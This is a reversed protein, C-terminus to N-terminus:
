RMNLFKFKLKPENSVKSFFLGCRKKLTMNIERCERPLLTFYADDCLIAYGLNEEIPHVFYAPSSGSNKIIASTRIIGDREETKEVNFSIETKVYNRAPSYPIESCRSFFYDKDIGRHTLRVFIMAMDDDPTYCLKKPLASLKIEEASLRNGNSDFLEVKCLEETAKADGNLCVTAEIKKDFTIGDYKLSIESKSFAKKIWYYAMKPNGFYDMLNTCDCNPWPENIQWVMSGSAYPAMRRETEIVYRLGEAQTWQSYPVYDAVNEFEGYIKKDRRYSHWWYEGHHCNINWTASDPSNEKMFLPISEPMASIGFESHLLLKLRNYNSYHTTPYYEWPSHVDHNDERTFVTTYVPGSPTTPLFLHEADEKEVIRKLMAINEDAYTSPICNKDTLENGGTWIALSTHNRKVKLACVAADALKDLFDVHKSPVHDIGSSSQIFDQWVLIGYRDCLDYFIETEIIGGGWVRVLNVNENALARVCWEYDEYSVNGYLHDLPVKNNGKIYVPKGNIEITYPLADEPSGPNQVYRLSRIGVKYEYLQSGYTVSLTYLPQSGMGNPYWISPTDIKIRNEIRKSYPIESRYVIDGEPNKLSIEVKGCYEGDFLFTSDVIGIDCEVDTKINAEEIRASETYEIYVGQWIGINVLRTGFDWKYGFRSKQTRTESTRGNQGLEVGAGKFVVEVTIKKEKIGSIDIRMPVFMNEHTGYSKGNIYVEALYDLGEFVLERKKCEIDSLQVVTRYIWWRNETWECALSNNELYPNAIIGARYLDLHIGGPVCADIEDTIIHRSIREENTGMPVNPLYGRLKWIGNICQKM